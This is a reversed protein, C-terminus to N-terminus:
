DVNEEEEQIVNVAHKMINDETRADGSLVGTVEGEYMVVIRQCISLVETMDSSVIIITKGEKALGRIINYIEERAGVDIGRTPEDVILIDPDSSLWKALVVKQQNGGSLNKVLQTPGTCVVRLHEIKEKTKANLKKPFLFASGRNKVRFTYDANEAINRDLVLGTHKRDETAFGLKAAIAAKASKITVPKGYLLIQGKDFKRLGFIMEMLESRGAGILGNFGLIEGRAVSFSVNKLIDGTIGKVELVIDKKDGDFDPAVTHVVERGVMLAAIDNETVDSIDKTAVLYGDRLVTVRDSIRKVEALRHSVYVIGVGQDTLKKILAFLIESEKQTLVATPEDMIILKANFSIAKAIEIMQKQAIKLTRVKATPNIDEGLSEMLEKADRNMRNFDILGLKTPERSLFINQAVTMDDLLNLEQHIMSVGARQMELPTKNPGVAKGNMEITGGGRSYVASLIKVLTSKGAGNEGCLAVVEGTNVDFDVGHLVEVGFFSKTIDKMEVLKEM